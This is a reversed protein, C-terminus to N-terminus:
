IARLYRAASELLEPDDQMMGLVRNCTACLLGRIRGTEHDHDVHPKGVVRGCIKCREGQAEWMSRLQEESSGYRQARVKWSARDNVSKQREPDYRERKLELRCAKCQRRGRDFSTIPKTQHCRICELVTIPRAQAKKSARSM